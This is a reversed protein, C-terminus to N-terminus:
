MLSHAYELVQDAIEIPVRIVKTQKGSWSSPRGKGRNDTTITVKDEENATFSKYFDIVIPDTMMTVRIGPNLYLGSLDKARSVATYLQGYTFTSSLMINVKDYQQGQSKHVTIAYAPKLPYQTITGVKIQQVTSVGNKGGSVLKYTYIQWTYQEVASQHGDDWRVKINTKGSFINKTISTVTGLTGNSVSANEDNILSIVRCGEKLRLKSLCGADSISVKGELEADFITEEAPLIDIYQNNLREAEDNRGCITIADNSPVHGSCAKLVDTVSEKKGQRIDNLIKIFETEGEQRITEDLIFTKFQRKEWEASQFPYGGNFEKGYKSVLIEKDAPTIIPPLQCFDGCVILQIKRDLKLEMNHLIGCVYDFVDIRCMSIEDIIVTDAGQFIKIHRKGPAPCPSAPINFARHLTVGGVNNAAIGTPACVVTRKKHESIFKNLVYSKGTGANGTLLVNQGSCMADYAAQQKANLM